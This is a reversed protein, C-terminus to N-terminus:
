VAFPVGCRIEVDAFATDEGTRIVFAADAIRTKFDEHPILDLEVAHKRLMPELLRRSM